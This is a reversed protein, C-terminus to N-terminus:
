QIIYETFYINIKLDPDFLTNINTLLKSKITDGQEVSSLVSIDQDRLTSIIIDRIQYQKETLKKVDKKNICGIAITIKLYRRSGGDDLNVVFSELPHMTEEIEVAKEEGEPAFFFTKTFFAYGTFAAASLLLILIVIIVILLGKKKKKPEETVTNETAGQNDAM